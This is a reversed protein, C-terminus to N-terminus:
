NLPEKSETNVSPILIRALGRPRGSRVRDASPDRTGQAQFEEVPRQDDILVMLSAHQGLVEPTVVGGPRVTGMALECRRLDACPWRLDVKDLVPDASFLDEASEQM